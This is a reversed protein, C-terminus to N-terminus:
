LTSFSYRTTRHFTQGPRLIIDGMDPQNPGNPHGQCELCIGAHGAYQRGSKGILTGDFASSTYLQLYQENTWVTLARGSGQHTVRAALTLPENAKEEGAQRILYLDGNVKRLGPLAEKLIRPQNFDNPEGAVSVQRGVYLLDDDNQSFSGSNIQLEHDAISGASEGALNFYSHHTPCFPTAADTTALTEIQFTNYPLVTYTVAVDLKGPYGEEGDPGLGDCHQVTWFGAGFVACLGLLALLSAGAAVTFLQRCILRTKRSADM